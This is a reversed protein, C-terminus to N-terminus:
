ETPWESLFPECDSDESSRSMLRTPPPVKSSDVTAALDLPKTTFSSDVFVLDDKPNCVGDGDIDILIVKRKYLDPEHVMPFSLTFTGKSIRAEGSGLREPPRDPVRDTIQSYAM